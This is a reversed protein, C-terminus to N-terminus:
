ENSEKLRLENGTLAYGNQLLHLHGVAFQTHYVSNGMDKYGIYFAVGTIVNGPGMPYEKKVVCVKDKVWMDRKGQRVFDFKDLWDETLVIPKVDEEPVTLLGGGDFLGVLWKDSYREDKMPTPSSTDIVMMITGNYRVYNGYHLKKAEM